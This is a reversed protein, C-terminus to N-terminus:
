KQGEVLAHNLGIQCTRKASKLERKDGHSLDPVQQQFYLQVPFVIWRKCACLLFDFSAPFPVLFSLVRRSM